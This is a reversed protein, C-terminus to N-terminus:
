PPSNSSTIIADVFAIARARNGSDIKLLPISLASAYIEGLERLRRRQLRLETLNRRPRQRKDLSRRKLVATAPADVLIIAALGLSAMVNTPVDVLERDNDIFAHAELLVPRELQGARENALASALEFQNDRVHDSEATRLKEGTTHFSRRLLSGATMRLIGPRARVIAKALHSKGSGSLGLIAIVPAANM